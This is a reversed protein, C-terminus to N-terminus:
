RKRRSREEEHTEIFELFPEIEGFHPGRSIDGTDRDWEILGEDQLKPLHLHVLTVNADSEGRAMVDSEHEVRGERVMELIVRRPRKSLVGLLRDMEPSILGGHFNTNM